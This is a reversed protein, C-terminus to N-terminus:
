RRRAAAARFAPGVVAAVALRRLPGGEAGEASGTGGGTPGVRCAGLAQGTLEWSFTVRRFRARTSLGSLCSVVRRTDAATHHRGPDKLVETRCCVAGTGFDAMDTSWTASGRAYRPEMAEIELPPMVAATDLHSALIKPLISFEHDNRTM